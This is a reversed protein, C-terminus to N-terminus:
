KKKKGGGGTASRELEVKVRTEHQVAAGANAEQVVDKAKGWANEVKGKVQQAVGKVQLQTDGSLEGAKRKASGVVEDITGKVRDTNM